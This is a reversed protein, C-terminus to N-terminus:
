SASREADAVLARVWSRGLVFLAAGLVLCLGGIGGGLLVAVPDAGLVTGLGLGALPLWALLRASARPGALATRRLAESEGAEAIGAVVVDIVDALPAGTRQALRAAAVAALVDARAGPPQRSARWRRRRAPPAREDRVPVSAGAADVLDAGWAPWPSPMSRRVATPLDAGARLRAAIEVLVHAVDPGRRRRARLGDVARVWATRVDGSGGSRGHATPRPMAAGLSLAAGAVLLLAVILGRM